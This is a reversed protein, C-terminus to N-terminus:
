PIKQISVTDGPQLGIQVASDGRLEIVQDILEPGPSYTPCPKAPCPPASPSIAVVVENRLFVIDLPVPVDMMWFRLQQPPDFSFLMGRNDPLASRFMLGLSQEQPTETVELEFTEGNMEATATVPLFQGTGDSAIIDPDTGGPLSCSALLSSLLLPLLAYRFRAFADITITPIYPWM